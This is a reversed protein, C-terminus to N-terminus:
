WNAKSFGGTKKVNSIKINDTAFSPLKKTKIKLISSIVIVRWWDLVKLTDVSPQKEIFITTAGESWESRPRNKSSTSNSFKKQGASGLRFTAM